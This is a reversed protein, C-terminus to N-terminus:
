KLKCDASKSEIEGDAALEWNCLEEWEDGFSDVGFFRILLQNPTANVAAFGFRQASWREGILSESQNIDRLYRGGAGQVIQTLGNAQVIEQHHDHGAMYVQVDCEEVLTDLGVQVSTIIGTKDESIGHKGSSYIPHHGFLIRWGLQGCLELRAAALMDEVATNLVKNADPDDLQWVQFRLITTDIAYIHLWPPLNPVLYHNYPMRWRDSKTTYDVESQVSDARLWDHNGPTLWMDIRGLGAYPEEFNTQLKSDATSNVGDRYINDGLTTIFDCSNGPQDCFAVMANAVAQQNAGGTGMDGLVLFTVEDLNTHDAIKVEQLQEASLPALSELKTTNAQICAALMLPIFTFLFLSYKHCSIRM